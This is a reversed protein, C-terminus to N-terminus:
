LLRLDAASRSASLMSQHTPISSDCSRTLKSPRKMLLKAAQGVSRDGYGPYELVYLSDELPLHPLVYDRMSAQGANGHSMLWVARPRDVERCFGIVAGNHRWPTLTSEVHDRSPIFLLSRQAFFMVVCVILYATLVVVILRYRRKHSM